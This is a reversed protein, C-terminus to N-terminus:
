PEEKPTTAPEEIYTKGIVGRKADGRLMPPWYFTGTARGLLPREPTFTKFHGRVYHLGIPARVGSRRDRRAM